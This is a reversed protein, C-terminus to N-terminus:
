LTPDIQLLQWDAASLPTHNCDGCNDPLGCDPCRENEPISSLPIM